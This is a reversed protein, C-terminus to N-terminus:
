ERLTTFDVDKGYKLLWEEALPNDSAATTLSKDAFEDVCTAGEDTAIITGPGGVCGGPCGMGEMFNATLKGQEVLKLLTRCEQVGDGFVANVELSPDLRNIARTIATTVGGTHAYIRGDHSADQIDESVGLDAVDVDAAEFLAQTERFTLVCDIADNLNPRQAEAKKAVCPGIFVVSCDHRAKLLRGMAIMPSVSRSVLKLLAPKTKEVLRMFVPCCCSTIMFKEGNHFREIFEEAEQLTIIDAALAVEYVDDFGIQLLAGKLKEPTINPRFQGAFSPALIAYVPKEDDRLLLYAVRAFDSRAVIAGSICADVCRACEICRDWDIILGKEPDHTIADTPCVDTCRRRGTECKQCIERFHTILPPPHQDDEELLMELRHRVIPKWKEREAADGFCDKTINTILKEKNFPKEDNRIARAVHVLLRHTFIRKNM